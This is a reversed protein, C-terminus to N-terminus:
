GTRRSRLAALLLIVAPWVAYFIWGAGRPTARLPYGPYSAEAPSPAEVRALEFITQLVIAETTSRSVTHRGQM